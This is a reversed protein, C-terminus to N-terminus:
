WANHVLLHTPPLPTSHLGEPNVTVANSEYSSEWKPGRLVSLRCSAGPPACAAMPREPAGNVEKSEERRDNTHVCVTVSFFITHANGPVHVFHGGAWNQNPLTRRPQTCNETATDGTGQCM